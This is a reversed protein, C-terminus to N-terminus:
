VAKFAFNDKSLKNNDAIFDRCQELALNYLDKSNELASTDRTFSVDGAKFSTVDDSQNILLIQYYVRSACLYVIQSSNENELDSLLSAVYSATGEILSNYKEIEDDTCNMIAKLENKILNLDTM